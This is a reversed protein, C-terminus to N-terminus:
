DSAARGLRVGPRDGNTFEVGIAEFV